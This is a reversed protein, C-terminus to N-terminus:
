DIEPFTYEATVSVIDFDKADFSVTRRQGGMLEVKGTVTKGKVIVEYYVTIERSTSNWIYLRYKEELESWEKKYHGYKERSCSNEVLSGNSANIENKEPCNNSSLLGMVTLLLCLITKMDVKLQIM